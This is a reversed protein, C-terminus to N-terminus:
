VVLLTVGVVTSDIETATDDAAWDLMAAIEEYSPVPLLM